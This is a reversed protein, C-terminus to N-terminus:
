LTDVFDSLFKFRRSASPTGDKKIPHYMIEISYNHFLIGEYVYENGKKDKIIEGKKAIKEEFLMNLVKILEERQKYYLKEAKRYAEYANNVSLAADIARQDTYKM